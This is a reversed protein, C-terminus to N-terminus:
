VWQSLAIVYNPEFINVGEKYLAFCIPDIATINNEEAFNNIPALVVLEFEFKLFPNSKLLEFKTKIEVQNTMPIFGFYEDLPALKYIGNFIVHNKNVGKGVYKRAIDKYVNANIVSSRSVDLSSEILKSLDFVREEFSCFGLEKLANESPKKVELNIKSLAIQTTEM